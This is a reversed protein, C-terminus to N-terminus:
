SIERLTEKLPLAGNWAIVEGRLEDSDRKEFEIVGGAMQLIFGAAAVDWLFLTKEIYADMRGAAIYCLSLAASGLIRMKRVRQSIEVFRRIGEDGSEDHRGHGVFVVAESMLRRASVHIPKGNCLAVGGQVAEFCENRMPDYVCGLVWEGRIRCAISVCFLPIKYFFNVTGDISDVVWQTESSDPGANGEEGLITDEPYSARLSEVILEQSRRDLELKLDHPFIADIQAEEASLYQERLFSGAAYAAERALEMRQQLSDNM